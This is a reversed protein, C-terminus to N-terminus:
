GLTGNKRFKPKYKIKRAPLAPTNYKNWLDNINQLHCGAAAKHGGGDFLKAIASVDVSEKTTYFSVKYDNGDYSYAIMLDHLLPNYAQDFAM